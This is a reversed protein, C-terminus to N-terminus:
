SSWGYWRRWGFIGIFLSAGVRDVEDGSGVSIVAYSGPPLWRVFASAIERATGFPFFHLVLALAVCAPEAPRILKCVVPDGLIGMPDRLDGAIAQVGPRALLCQAHTVVLPDNDVYVIRSEPAEQAVEHTNGASPM